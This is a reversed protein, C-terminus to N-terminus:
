CDEGKFDNVQEVRGARRGLRRNNEVEDEKKKKSKEEKKGEEKQKRRKAKEENNPAPMENNYRHQLNFALPPQFEFSSHRVAAGKQISRVAGCM